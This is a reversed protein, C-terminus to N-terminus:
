GCYHFEMRRNFNAQTFEQARDFIFRPTLLPLFEMGESKGSPMDFRFVAFLTPVDAMIQLKTLPHRGACSLDFGQSMIAFGTEPLKEPHSRPRLNLTLDEGSGIFGIVNTKSNLKMKRQGFLRFIRGGLRFHEDLELCLDTAFEHCKNWLQRELDTTM